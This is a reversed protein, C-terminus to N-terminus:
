QHTFHKERSLLATKIEPGYLYSGIGGDSKVVRHCPVLLILKNLGCITGAARIAKPNGSVDALQAYSMTEGYPISNIARWVRTQFETGTQARPIADLATGDGDFYAQVLQAYPHSEFKTLVTHRLEEPLRKTLAAITGFGSARALNDADIIIHFDGQPTPTTIYMLNEM